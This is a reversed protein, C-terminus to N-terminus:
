PSGPFTLARVTHDSEWEIVAHALAKTPEIHQMLNPLNVLEWAGNVMALFQEDEVDLWPDFFPSYDHRAAERFALTRQIFWERLIPEDAHLYIGIDLQEAFQLANVGEFFVVDCRPIVRMDDTVDYALHDYVPISTAASSRIEILFREIAVVDYSDPFGKRDSLNRAELEANPLLFGDSAVVEVAIGNSASLTQAVAQSFTSKGAAVGGTVGVVLTSANSAQADLIRDLLPDIGAPIM